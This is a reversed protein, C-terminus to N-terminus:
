ILAPWEICMSSQSCFVWLFLLLGTFVTANNLPHTLNRAFETIFM